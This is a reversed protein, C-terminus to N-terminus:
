MCLTARFLILWKGSLLASAKLCTLHDDNLRRCTSGQCLAQKSGGHLLSKDPTLEMLFKDSRISDCLTKEPTVESVLIRTDSTSLYKLSAPSITTGSGVLREVSEHRSSAESAAADSHVVGDCDKCESVTAAAESHVLSDCNKHESPSHSVAAESHGLIDCNRVSTPSCKERMETHGLKAGKDDVCSTEARKRLNVSKSTLKQTCETFHPVFGSKDKLTRHTSSVNKRSRLSYATSLKVVKSTSEVLFPKKNCTKINKAQIVTSNDCDISTEQLNNQLDTSQPSDV